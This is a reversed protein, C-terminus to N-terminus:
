LLTRSRGVSINIIKSKQIQYTPRARFNSKVACITMQHHQPRSWGRHGRSFNWALGSAVCTWSLGHLFLQQIKSSPMVVSVSLHHLANKM